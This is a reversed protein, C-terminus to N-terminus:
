RDPETGPNVASRLGRGESDFVVSCLLSGPAVYDDPQWPGIYSWRGTCGAPYCLETGPNDFLNVARQRAGPENVAAKACAERFERATCLHRTQRCKAVGRAAMWERAPHLAVTAGVVLGAIVGPAAFGWLTWVLRGGATKSILAGALAGTLVGSAACWVLWRFAADGEPKQGDIFRSILSGAALAAAPVLLLAVARSPFPRAPPPRAAELLAPDLPKGFLHHEAGSGPARPKGPQEPMAAAM